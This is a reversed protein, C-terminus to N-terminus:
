IVSSTRYQAYGRLAEVVRFLYRMATIGLNCVWNCKKNGFAFRTPHRPWGKYDMGRGLHLIQQM